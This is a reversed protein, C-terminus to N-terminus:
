ELDSEDQLNPMQGNFGYAKSKKTWSVPIWKEVPHEQQVAKVTQGKEKSQRTFTFVYQKNCDM